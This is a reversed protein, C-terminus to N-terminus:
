TALEVYAGCSIDNLYRITRPKGTGNSEALNSLLHGKSVQLLMAEVKEKPYPAWNFPLTSARKQLEFASQIRHPLYQMLEPVMRKIQGGTVAMDFIDKITNSASFLEERMRATNIAWEIFQDAAEQGLHAVLYDKTVPLAWRFRYEQNTVEKVGVLIPQRESARMGTFIPFAGIAAKEINDNCEYRPDGVTQELDIQASILKDDIELLFNCKEMSACSRGLSAGYVAMTNLAARIDEPFKSNWLDIVTEKDNLPPQVFLIVNNLLNNLHRKADSKDKENLRTSM